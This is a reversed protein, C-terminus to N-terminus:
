AVYGRRLALVDVGLNMAIEDTPPLMSIPPAIVIFPMAYPADFAASFKTMRLSCWSFSPSLAHERYLRAAHVNVDSATAKGTQGPPTTVSM